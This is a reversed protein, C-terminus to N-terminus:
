GKSRVYGCLTVVSNKGNYRGDEDVKYNLWQM